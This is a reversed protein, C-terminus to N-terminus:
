RAAPKALQRMLRSKIRAAKNPHLTGRAAARDARQALQPILERAKAEDGAALFKKIQKIVKKLADKRALNRARRKQNQRLAKAAAPINPICIV